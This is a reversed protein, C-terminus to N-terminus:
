ENRLGAASVVGAWRAIDQALDSAFQKASSGIPDIALAHLKDRTAPAQLAGRFEDQLRDVIAPPTGAPALLGYWATVQFGPYGSEAVTPVDPYGAVRERGTFALPKLQGSRIYPEVAGLLMFAVNIEGALLDKTETGTNNYPVHLMEVNARTTLMVATLHDASGVGATGYAVRGPASRARDILETLNNVGFKPNCVIIVPQTALKSIPALAHTPDVARAGQTSPLVTLSTAAVLLTYGDPAAKAVIDAAINGSAGPRNDVLVPQGLAQELMPALTRIMTDMVGGASLALVLRIPRDPYLEAQAASVQRPVVSCAVIGILLCRALNFRRLSGPKM